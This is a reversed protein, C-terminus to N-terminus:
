YLDRLTIKSNNVDSFLRPVIKQIFLSIALLRLTVIYHRYYVFYSCKLFPTSVKDYVSGPVGLCGGVNSSM